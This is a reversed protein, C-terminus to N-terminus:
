FVLLELTVTIKFTIWLVIAVLALLWAFAAVGAMFWRFIRSVRSIKKSAAMKRNEHMSGEWFYALREEFLPNLIMGGINIVPVTFLAFLCRGIFRIVYDEKPRIDLREPYFIFKHFLGERIRMLM